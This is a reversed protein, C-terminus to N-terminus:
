KKRYMEEKDTHKKRRLSAFFTCIPSSIAIKASSPSSMLEMWIGDAAQAEAEDVGAGGAAVATGAGAAAGAGVAAAAGATPVTSFMGDREGVMFSPVITSHNFFSPSSIFGPLDNNYHLIPLTLFMM